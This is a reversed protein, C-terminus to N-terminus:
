NLFKEGDGDGQRLGDFKDRILQVKHLLEVADFYAISGISEAQIDSKAVECFANAIAWINEIETNTLEVSRTM